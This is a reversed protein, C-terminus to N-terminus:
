STKFGPDGDVDITLDVVVLNKRQAKRAMGTLIGTFTESQSLSTGQDPFNIQWNAVNTLDALLTALLHATSDAPDYAVSLTVQGADVMAKRKRKFKDTLISVDATDSTAGPGDMGDVIGGITTFSTGGTSDVGLTFGYGIRRELTM